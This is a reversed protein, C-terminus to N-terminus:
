DVLVYDMSVLSAKVLVMSPSACGVNKVSHVVALVQDVNVLPSVIPFVDPNTVSTHANLVRRAVTRFHVVFAAKPYTAQRSVFVLHTLTVLLTAIVVMQATEMRHPVAKYANPPPIWPSVNVAARAITQGSATNVRKWMQPQTMTQVYTLMQFVPGREVMSNIVFHTSQAIKTAAARKVVIRETRTIVSAIRGRPVIVIKLAPIM